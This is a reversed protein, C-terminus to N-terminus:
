VNGLCKVRKWGSPNWRFRLWAKGILLKEPVAQWKRSDSAFLLNDGLFYYFDQTFTYQKAAFISDLKAQSEEKPMFTQFDRRILESWEAKNQTDLKVNLGRKPVIVHEINRPYYTLHKARPGITRWSSQSYEEQTFTNMKSFHIWLSDTESLLLLSDTKIFGQIVTPHAQYVGTQTIVEGSPLVYLTDGPLGVCRKVFSMRASPHLHHSIPNTFLFIDDQKPKLLIGSNYYPFGKKTLPYYEPSRLVYPFKAAFIWDGVELTPVMSPSPIHYFGIVTKLFWSFLYIGVLYGFGKGM